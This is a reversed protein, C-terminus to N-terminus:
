AAPPTVPALGALLKAAAVDVSAHYTVTLKHFVAVDAATLAAKSMSPLGSNGILTALAQEAGATVGDILGGLGSLEHAALTAAGQEGLHVINALAFGVAPDQKEAWAIVKEGEAVLYTIEGRLWAYGKAVDAKFATWDSILTQAINM